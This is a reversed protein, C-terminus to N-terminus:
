NIRSAAGRRARALEVGVRGQGFAQRGDLGRIARAAAEGSALTVFGFGRGMNVAEVVRGHVEFVAQLQASTVSKPVGSVFLKCDGKISRLAEEARQEGSLGQKRTRERRELEM